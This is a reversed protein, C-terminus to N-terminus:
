LNYFKISNLGMILNQERVTFTNIYNKIIALQETYKAALLCVPWDSGYMIRNIGFTGFIIDLYPIFDEYRWNNVDSETVLGSVKCHVNKHKALAKMQTKWPELEREQISPKAIHDLVFRQNPFKEVLKITNELQEKQILIDYVLDFKKLKSIGNQFDDHLIFDKSEAQIIHRVGKFKPNKAFYSLREEVDNACLDVWGVVGKIFSNEDAINLLFITEKESQDAQVAVCGNMNNDKLIPELDNPSFDKRLVQMSEDIWSDRIPDYNWFHQHSDIRM